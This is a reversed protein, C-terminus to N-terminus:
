QILMQYIGTQRLKTVINHKALEWMCNSADANNLQKFSSIHCSYISAIDFPDNKKGKSNKTWGVLCNKCKKLM